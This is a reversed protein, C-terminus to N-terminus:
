GDAQYYDHVASVLGGVLEREAAALFSNWAYFTLAMRLEDSDNCADHEISDDFVCAQGCRREQTESRVRFWCGSQAILPLHVILRTNTEGATRRYPRASLEAWQERPRKGPIACLSPM